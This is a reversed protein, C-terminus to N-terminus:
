GDMQKRHRTRHKTEMSRGISKPNSAELLYCENVYFFLLLLYSIHKNTASPMEKIEFHAKNIGQIRFIGSDSFGIPQKTITKQLGHGTTKNKDVSM